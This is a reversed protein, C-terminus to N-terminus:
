HLLAQAHNRQMRVDHTVRAGAESRAKMIRVKKAVATPPTSHATCLPTHSTGTTRPRSATAADGGSPRPSRKWPTTLAHCRHAGMGRDGHRCDAAGAHDRRRLRHRSG